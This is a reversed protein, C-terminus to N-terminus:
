SSLRSVKVRPVSSGSFRCEYSYRINLVHHTAMEGPKVPPRQLVSMQGNLLIEGGSKRFKVVSVNDVDGKVKGALAPKCRQVADRREPDTIAPPAAVAIVATWLLTIM